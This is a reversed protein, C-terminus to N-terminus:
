RFSHSVVAVFVVCLLVHLSFLLLVSSSRVRGLAVTVGSVADNKYRRIQSLLTILRIKQVNRRKLANFARDVEAFRNEILRHFVGMSHINHCLFSFDITLGYSVYLLAFRNQNLCCLM